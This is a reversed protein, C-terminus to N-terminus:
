ETEVAHGVEEVINEINKMAKIIMKETAKAQWLMTAKDEGGTVIVLWDAVAVKIVNSQTLLYPTLPVKPHKSTM